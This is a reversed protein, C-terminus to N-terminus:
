DVARIEQATMTPMNSIDLLGIILLESVPPIIVPKSLRGGGGVAVASLGVHLQVTGFTSPYEGFPTLLVPSTNKTDLKSKILM